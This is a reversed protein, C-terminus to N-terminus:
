RAPRTRRAADCHPALAAFFHESPFATEPAHVGDTIKGDRLLVLGVAVPVGTAGGMGESPLAAARAGVRVRQGDREGEALAFVPPITAERIAPDVARPANVDRASLLQAADRISMAGEDIM